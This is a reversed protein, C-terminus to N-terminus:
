YKCFIDLEEVVLGAAHPETSTAHGDHGSKEGGAKWELYSVVLADIQLEWHESTIDTRDRRTRDDARRSSTTTLTSVSATLISISYLV